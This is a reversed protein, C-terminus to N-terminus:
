KKLISRLEDISLADQNRHIMSHCNPCLPILDKIPDLIYEQNIKSIPIVHHVHIFGRGLEGYTKFFDFGCANCFSGHHAICIRRALPNREYKNVIVSKVSGEKLILDKNLQSSSLSYDLTSSNQILQWIIQVPSSNAYNKVAVKGEFIFPEHNNVRTFLYINQGTPPNLMKQILPQGISSRTKAEWMFLDGDWYNNYDHGTRGPIGINAFIYIHGNYERYGTDWAGKRREIPVQLIEYIENKTYAMGVEFM